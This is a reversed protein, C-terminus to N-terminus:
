NHGKMTRRAAGTTSVGLLKASQGKAVNVAKVKQKYTLTQAMKAITPMNATYM